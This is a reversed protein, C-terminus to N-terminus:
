PARTGVINGATKALRAREIGIGEAGLLFVFGSDRYRKM